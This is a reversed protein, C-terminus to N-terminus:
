AVLADISKNLEEDSVDAVKEEQAAVPKKITEGELRDSAFITRRPVIVPEERLTEVTLHRLVEKMGRLKEEIGPLNERDTAFKIFGFYATDSKERKGADSRVITYALNMKEPFHEFIIEADGLAKRVKEVVAGVGDEPITPVVHFAVEYVPQNSIDGRAEARSESVSAQSLVEPKGETQSKETM